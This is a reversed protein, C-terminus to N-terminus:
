ELEGIFPINELISARIEAMFFSELQHFQAAPKVGVSQSMKKYYNDRLKDMTNRLAISEKMLNKTSEDDLNEYSEVYKEILAIRQKGLNKREAEYEDYLKWFADSQNEELKIFGEMIIKKEKGYLAQVLDIDETNSQAFALGSMFIAIALLTVRM